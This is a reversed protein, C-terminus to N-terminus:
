HFEKELHTLRQKFDDVFMELQEIKMFSTEIERVKQIEAEIEDLEKELGLEKFFKDEILSQQNNVSEYTQDSLNSYHEKIKFILYDYNVSLQKLNLPDDIEDNM